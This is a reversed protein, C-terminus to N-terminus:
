NFKAVKRLSSIKLTLYNIIPVLFNRLATLTSFWELDGPYPFLGLYYHFRKKRFYTDYNDM